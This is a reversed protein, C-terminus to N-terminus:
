FDFKFGINFFRPSLINPVPMPRTSEPFLNLWSYSTVNNKNFVNLVQATLTVRKNDVINFEYTLGMDVRFYFPYEEPASFNPVIEYAGPASGPIRQMPYFHYGTGFLFLVHAQLDPVSKVHDQLFIRISHVQDMPSHVYPTNGPTEREEADLYSYGIWTEMGQVMTGEYQLDLGYAYGEHNNKDGYTLQLQSITYPILKSLNKYYIEATFRARERFRYEWSLNYQVAKQAMMSKAELITKDRTEYYYPPQYYYGWSLCLSHIDNPTYTIDARPSFLLEGNFYYKLARIGASASFTSSLYMNDEIYGSLSNVTMTRKQNAANSTIVVSDAGRYTTSEQISTELNSFRVDIGTKFSHAQVTKTYDAQLGLRKTNFSDDTLEYGKSLAQEDGPRSYVDFGFTADYSLNTQYRESESSYVLSTTLRSKDNFPTIFKLGALNTNNRYNSTGAFNFTVQRVVQRAYQYNGFWSQPTSEFNNRALICLLQIEFDNPLSYTGLFQVDDFSPKYEGSTQLTKDFLSPYAHRIGARWSFNGSRDHLTLGANFFDAHVEGKLEPREDTYYNVALASSMKDGFHVPFAGHHFEMTNVMNENIISQSQEIGQQLLRPQYIEYGNLYILNEDFNGGRVNYTSSLENNSSVGPLIKISNLVNSFLNPMSQIDKAKLTDLAQNGSERNAQVTVDNMMYMTPDLSVNINLDSENEAIRIKRILTQYGVCSFLISYNGAKVNLRYIGLKDTSTGLPTNLVSINVGVLPAGTSADKIYGQITIFKKQGTKGSSPLGEEHSPTASQGLCQAAIIFILTFRPIVSLKHNRVTCAIPSM